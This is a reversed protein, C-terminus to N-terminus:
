AATGNKVEAKKRAKKKPNATGNTRAGGHALPAMELLSRIYNSVSMKAKKALKVAKAKEDHDQFRILVSVAM